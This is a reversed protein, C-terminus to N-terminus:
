IQLMEGATKYATETYNDGGLMKAIEETRKQKDLCEMRTYSKKETETKSVLLHMDARAAVQPLHTIVLLQIKKGMEEFIGAMKKATEGSIGSDIEDFILTPLSLTRAIVSKVALMVRSMEGGSAVKSLEQLEEGKNASFYFAINDFGRITLSDTKMNRVSFRANPISLQKLIEEMEAELGPIIQTRKISIDAAMSILGKQFEESQKELREIEEDFRGIQTLNNELDDKLRLLDLSSQVKHKLLLRHINNLREEILASRDPDVTIKEELASMESAIDDLEIEASKLREAIGSCESYLDIITGLSSVLRVLQAHISEENYKLQSAASLLTTKIKGANQLIRLEHEIQDNEGDFTNLESIEDLLFAFYDKDRVNESQKKKLNELSTETKQWAAWKELFLQYQKGTGAVADLLSLHFANRSLLTTTHQSHIDVLKEGLLKLVPLGVPTDNIFARSKGNPLIERRIICTTDYDLENDIFFDQGVSNSIDFEGEIVCKESPDSLGSLDAREGLLLGLAGLFISKGAGTEGTIVTFEKHFDMELERILIFNRISLHKLM